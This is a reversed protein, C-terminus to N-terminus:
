VVSKRVDSLICAFRGEAPSFAFVELHKHFERSYKEFHTPEGTLAVKGYTEIWFPEVRPLLELVTKGVADKMKLGTLREFAPNVELFRYDRPQDAEDCIIEHLALGETMGNFLTRYREESEWLAEEARERAARMRLSVIGHALVGSLEALLDVEETDFANWESARINLAGFTRDDAILPFAASSAYGRKVADARWSSYSPDAVINKTICPKGSRIAMGMPDGGLENEAWTMKVTDLYEADCGIRAVPRVSKEEDDEAYGVWALHYGGVEVAIRCVEHLLASEERAHVVLQSAQSLVKLARNIRGLEGEVRRQHRRSEAEAMERVVAPVLRALKDKLVYDHVGAKMAEVAVDEGAKGSVIIFPLDFGMERSLKFAALGDFHPMVYDAIIVDWTQGALAAAMSASTDVRKFIPEYGGKRLERVMIVADDESDEVILVRLQVSM